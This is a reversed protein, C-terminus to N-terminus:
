LGPPCTVFSWTMKVRGDALKAIKQFATQSLDIDGFACGPCKDLIKVTVSGLPGKIAACRGCNAKSYQSANMAGVLQSNSTPQGCAGTGNANYYTAEGSFTEAQGADVAADQTVPLASDQASSSADGSALSGGDQETTGGDPDEAASGGGDGEDGSCALLALLALVALSTGGIRRLNM